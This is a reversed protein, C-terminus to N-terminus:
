SKAFPDGVGVGLGVGVPLGELGVGVGVIVGVGVGAGPDACIILGVGPDVNLEDVTVKLQVAPLALV